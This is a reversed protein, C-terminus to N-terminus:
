EGTIERKKKRLVLTIISVGVVGIISGVIIIIMIFNDSPGSPGSDVLEVLLTNEEEINGVEDISQYSILIDGYLNQSLNFHTSYELWASDNIKYRIASVGSGSGDDAILTFTTSKNVLNPEQHVNYSISSTPAIIDKRVTVEDYGENCLIDNGYFKIDVTGDGKKDWETQNISGTLGSFTINTIGDDLTYWTTYLFPEVISINFNPTVSGIFENPTPSNIIITPAIDDIFTYMIEGDDGWPGDTDDEWVIHVNGNNDIVISPNYSEGDNWYIGGFGDSIVTVNSWGALSSYKVYMIEADEGSIWPGITTDGWAVHVNGNNDIAISPDYSTGDNWNTGDDSIVTANSWGASFSYNAYMIEDDNGWPGVTNDYWVVHINGNNDIAISPEQSYGDNWYIGGFGDSILTANSWGASSSYNAYMVEGDNGWPGVTGDDWVVHVNGNNDIAISPDYSTGDNWYIGEFGDSIVTANSWEASSSYNVYMIEYDMSNSRWPGDTNDSWVVHINDNNDIAISPSSSWGDNWNTNDDSIVTANFWGASTSYNVYMIEIDNGWPGTTYDYWVVHLNGGNDIAISPEYSSGDNWYIGGFGDSIVTANSWGTSSSYNAYMIEVDIGWQGDTNNSWVVHLNGDNDIAISSEFSSGDNWYIGGFGDSIVTANAYNSSSTKVTFSEDFDGFNYTSESIDFKVTSFVGVIIVLYILISISRVKHKM